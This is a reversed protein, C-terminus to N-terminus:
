TGGCADYETQCVDMGAQQVCASCDARIGQGACEAECEDACVGAACVCAILADTEPDQLPDTSPDCGLVCACCIGDGPCCGDGRGLPCSCDGGGEEM